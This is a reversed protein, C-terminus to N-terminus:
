ATHTPLDLGNNKVGNSHFRRRQQLKKRVFTTIQGTFLALSAYQVVVTATTGFALTTKSVRLALLLGVVLPLLGPFLGPMALWLSPRYRCALLVTASIQSLTRAVNPFGRSRHREDSWRLAAPVETVRMQKALADLLLEAMAVMRDSRFELRRLAEVRYARVMCTLTAYKGGTALSLLRNAERSLLRRLLPVNAVSGGCAYASAFAVEADERELAEILHMVTSPAYSMDADFVVALETDIEAVASRLAAGLGRNREHRIIRVSDRWRAFSEAVSFTDDTSGDDVILYHFEYGGSRHIALYDSLRALSAALNRGENYAPVIITVTTM